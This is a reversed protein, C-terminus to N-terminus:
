LYNIKLNFVKDSGTITFKTNNYNPRKTHNGSNTIGEKPMGYWTKDLEADSNKDHFVVFSYEGEPINEIVIIARKQTILKTIQKKYYKEFNAFEQGKKYLVVVVQGKNSKLGSINITVNRQSFLATSFLM